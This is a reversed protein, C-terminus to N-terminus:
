PHKPMKFNKAVSKWQRHIQKVMAVTYNETHKCDHGRCQGHEHGGPCKAAIGNSFEKSLTTIRWPKYLFLKGDLTTLGYACGNIYANYINFQRFYTQVRRDYWYACRKPWEVAFIGGQDVVVNAIKQFNTWLRRFIEWLLRLRNM